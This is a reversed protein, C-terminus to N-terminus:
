GDCEITYDSTNDIKLVIDFVTIRNRFCPNRIKYASVDLM